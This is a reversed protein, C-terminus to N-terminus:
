GAFTFDFQPEDAAKEPEVFAVVQGADNFTAYQGAGLDEGVLFKAGQAPLAAVPETVDVPEEYPKSDEDNALLDFFYDSSTAAVDAASLAATEQISITQGSRAAICWAELARRVAAKNIIISM